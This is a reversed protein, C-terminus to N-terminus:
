DKQYQYVKLTITGDEERTFTEIYVEKEDENIIQKSKSMGVQGEEFISEVLITGEFSGMGDKQYSYTIYGKEDVTLTQTLDELLKARQELEKETWDKIGKTILKIEDSDQEASNEDSFDDGAGSLEKELQEIYAEAKERDGKTADLPLQFLANVGEYSENRTIEGTSEEFQYSRFLM